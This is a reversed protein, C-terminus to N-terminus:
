QLLRNHDDTEVPGHTEEEAGYRNHYAIDEEPQWTPGRGTVAPSQERPIDYGQSRMRITPISKLETNFTQAAKDDEPLAYAGRHTTKRQTKIDLALAAFTSVTGCLAMAWLAKYDRCVGAEAEGGFEKGTCQRALVHSNRVSWSLMAFGMAWLISTSGNLVLNFSPALYTFNYLCITVTLAVITSLSVAFLVIFTWPIPISELRLYHVFYAMIGSVIIAAILQASRLGHFLFRPYPSPVGGRVNRKLVM